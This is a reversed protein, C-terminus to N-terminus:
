KPAAEPAEAADAASITERIFNMMADTSQFVYEEHASRISRKPRAVKTIGDMITKMFAAHDHEGSEHAKENAKAISSFLDQVGALQPNPVMIPPYDVEVLFGNQTKRISIELADTGNNSGEMSGDEKGKVTPRRVKSGISFGKSFDSIFDRLFDDQM